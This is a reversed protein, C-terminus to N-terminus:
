GARKEGSSRDSTLSKAFDLYFLLRKKQPQRHLKEIFEISKSHRITYVICLRGYYVLLAQM